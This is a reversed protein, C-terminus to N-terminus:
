SERELRYVAQSQHGVVVYVGRSGSQPAGIVFRDGIRADIVSAHDFHGPCGPVLSQLRCPREPTRRPRPTKARLCHVALWGQEAWLVAMGVALHPKDDSLDPDFGGDIRLVLQTSLARHLARM